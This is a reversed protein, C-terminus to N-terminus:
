LALLYLFWSDVWTGAPALVGEAVGHLNGFKNEMQGKAFQMINGFELREM